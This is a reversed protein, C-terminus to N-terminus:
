NANETSEFVPISVLAQEQDESFLAVATYLYSHQEIKKQAFEADEVSSFVMYAYAGSNEIDIQLVAIPEMHSEEFIDEDQDTM